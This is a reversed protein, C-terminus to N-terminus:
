AESHIKIAKSQKPTFVHNIVADYFHCHMTVLDGFICHLDIWTPSLPWICTDYVLVNAEGICFSALVNAEKQIPKGLVFLPWRIPRCTDCAM